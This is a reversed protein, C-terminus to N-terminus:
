KIGIHEVMGIKGHGYCFLISLDNTDKELYYHFSEKKMLDLAAKRDISKLRVRRNKLTVLRGNVLTIETENFVDKEPRNFIGLFPLPRSIRVFRDDEQLLIKMRFDHLDRYIIINEGNTKLDLFAELDSLPKSSYVEVPEEMDKQSRVNRTLVVHNHHEAKRSRHSKQRTKMRAAKLSVRDMLTDICAYMDPASQSMYIKEDDGSLRIEAIHSSREIKLFIHAETVNRFVHAAKELKKEIYNKLNDTLKINVASYKIDM